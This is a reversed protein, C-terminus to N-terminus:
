VTQRLSLDKSVKCRLSSLNRVENSIVFLTAVAIKCQDNM